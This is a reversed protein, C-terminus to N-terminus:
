STCLESFVCPCWYINAIVDLLPWDPLVAAVAGTGTWRKAVQLLIRTHEKSLLM